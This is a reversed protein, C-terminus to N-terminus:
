QEFVEVGIKVSPGKLHGSDGAAPHQAGTGGIRRRDPGRRIRAPLFQVQGLEVGRHQGGDGIVLRDRVFAQPAYEPALDAAVQDPPQMPATQDSGSGAGEDM